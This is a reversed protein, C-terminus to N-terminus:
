WSILRTKIPAGGAGGRSGRVAGAASRSEGVLAPFITGPDRGPNSRPETCHRCRRGWPVVREREALFGPGSHQPPICWMRRLHPKLANKKLRRACRRTVSNLCSRWNWWGNPWCGCHGVGGARLRGRAPWLWCSRRRRATWSARTFGHARSPGCRRRWGTRSLASGCGGLRACVSGCPKPLEPIRGSRDAKPRTRKCCCGRTYRRRAAAKGRSIMHGLAEREEATLTVRYRKRM